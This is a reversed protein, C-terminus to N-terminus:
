KPPFRVIVAFAAGARAIPTEKDFSRVPQNLEYNKIVPLVRAPFGIACPDESNTKM